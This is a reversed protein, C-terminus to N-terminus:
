TQFTVHTAVSSAKNCCPHRLINPMSFGPSAADVRVHVLKSTFRESPALPPPLSRLWQGLEVIFVDYWRPHWGVSLVGGVLFVGYWDVLRAGDLNWRLALRVHVPLSMLIFGSPEVTLTYEPRTIM